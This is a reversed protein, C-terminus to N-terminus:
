CFATSKRAPDEAVARSMILCLLYQDPTGDLPTFKHQVANVESAIVKITDKTHINSKFIKPIPEQPVPSSAPTVSETNTSPIKNEIASIEHLIYELNFISNSRM